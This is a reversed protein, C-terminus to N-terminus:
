SGSARTGITQSHVAAPTSPPATIVAELMSRMRTLPWKFSAMACTAEYLPRWNDDRARQYAAFADPLSTTGSLGADLAGALMEAQLLADSIGHGLLPDCHHGADGVLAWGPGWPRRFCGGTEATGFFRSRRQAHQFRKSLHPFARLQALFTVEPSRKFQVWDTVPRTAVVCALGDHTPRIALARDTAFHHEPINVEVGAWYSYYCCSTAPQELYRGAGVARAVFSRRGDAGVVVQATEVVSRGNPGHGVVGSVRDGDWVLDTVTFCERVEAGERAAHERLLTDLVSRRPSYTTGPVEVIDFDTTYRTRDAGPCGSRALGELLGYNGLVASGAPGVYNACPVDSPFKGQDTLLVRHEHGALLMATLSGACRGGVVVVDYM